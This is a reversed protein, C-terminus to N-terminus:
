GKVREYWIEENRDDTDVKPPRGRSAKMYQSELWVAFGGTTKTLEDWQRNWEYPSEADPEDPMTTDLRLLRNWLHGGNGPFNEDPIANLLRVVADYTPHGAKLTGLAWPGSTGWYDGLAASAQKALDRIESNM